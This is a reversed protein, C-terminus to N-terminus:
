VVRTPQGVTGSAGAMTLVETFTSSRKSQRNLLSFVVKRRSECVKSIAASTVPAAIGATIGLDIVALFVLLLLATGVVTPIWYNQKLM